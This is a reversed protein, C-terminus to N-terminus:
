WIPARAVGPPGTAIITGFPVFPMIAPRSRIVNRPVSFTQITGISTRTSTSRPLKMRGRPSSSLLVTLIGGVLTAVCSEQPRSMCVILFVHEVCDADDDDNDIVIDDRERKVGSCYWVGRWWHLTGGSGHFDPCTDSASCGTCRRTRFTWLWANTKKTAKEINELTSTSTPARSRSVPTFSDEFQLDADDDAYDGASLQLRSQGATVPKAPAKYGGQQQQKPQASASSPGTSRPSAANVNSKSRGDAMTSDIRRASLSRSSASASFLQVVCTSAWEARKFYPARACRLRVRGAPRPLASPLQASISRRACAIHQGASGGVCLCTCACVCVCVCVYTYM